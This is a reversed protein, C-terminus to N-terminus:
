DFIENDFSYTNGVQKLTMLFQPYSIDICKINDVKIPRKSICSAILGTMALRHDNHTEWLSDGLIQPSGKISFGDPYANINIGCNKFNKIILALRNSEKYMLENADKVYSIGDAMAMLLAIIAIEDIGTAINKYDINFPKLRAGGKIEIDCVEEFNIIKHNILKINAEMKILANTILTRGPNININNLILHLGPTIAALVLFYAASSLDGPVSMNYPMIPKELYKVGCIQSNFNRQYINLAQFMKSTHTRVLNPVSVITHGRANLGALLLASQVQASAVDIQYKIGKLNGGKIKFPPYGSQDLYEFDCGMLKLPECLRHMPRKNLSNDGQFIFQTDHWALLGTLLRLTTGSNQADITMSAIQMYRVFPSNIILKNPTQKFKVGLQNLCNLTTQCDLSNAYNEIICNEQNTLLSLLLARHTISKDGPIKIYCPNNLPTM